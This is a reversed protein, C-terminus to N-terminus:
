KVWLDPFVKSIFSINWLARHILLSAALFVCALPLALRSHRPGYRLLAYFTLIGAAWALGVHWLAPLFFVSHPRTLVFVALYVLLGSAAGGILSTFVRAAPYLRSANV